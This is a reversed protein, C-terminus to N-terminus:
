EVILTASISGFALGGTGLSSVTISLGNTTGAVVTPLQEGNEGFQKCFVPQGPADATGAGLEGIQFSTQFLTPGVTGLTPTRRAIGPYNAAAPDMKSIADAGTGEATLQTGGSSATSRRNIAITVGAAATANTVGVCFSSLKFGISSGAEIQMSYLATTTLASSTAVYTTRASPGENVRVNKNADVKALDAADGSKIPIGQAMALSPLLLLVAAGALKRM